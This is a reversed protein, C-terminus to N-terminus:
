NAKKRAPHDDCTACVKVDDRGTDVRTCQGHLECDRVSRAEGNCSECPVLVVGEHPCKPLVKLSRKAPKAATAPTGRKAKGAHEPYKQNAGAKKRARTRKVIDRLSM